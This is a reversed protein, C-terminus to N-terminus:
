VKIVSTLEGTSTDIEGIQFEPIAPIRVSLNEYEARHKNVCEIADNLKFLQYQKKWRRRAEPLRWLNNASFWSTNDYIDPVTYPENQNTRAVITFNDLKSLKPM